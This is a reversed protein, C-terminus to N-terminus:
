PAERLALGLGLLTLDPEVREIRPCVRAVTRADGGTAVVVPRQGLLAEVRAAYELVLGAAGRLLGARIAGITDRGLLPPEEDPGLGVEVRPLKATRANLAWAGTSLGPAIAGGLFAGAPSVVNLTIATGLDAVLAAQGPYERAAWLADCVRDGGTREPEDVDLVLRARLTEGLVRAFPLGRAALWAELRARAAPNVSVVAVRAPADRGDLLAAWGAEAHGDTALQHAVDARAV